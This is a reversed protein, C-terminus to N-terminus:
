VNIEIWYWKEKRQPKKPAVTIKVAREHEERVGILGHLLFGIMIFAIGIVFEAPGTGVAAAPVVAAQRLTEDLPIAGDMAVSGAGTLLAGFLKTQGVFAYACGTGFSLLRAAKLLTNTSM